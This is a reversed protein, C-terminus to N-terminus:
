PNLSNLNQNVSRYFTTVIRNANILEGSDSYARSSRAVIQFIQVAKNVDEPKYGAMQIDRKVDETVEDTGLHAVYYDVVENNPGTWTAANDINWDFDSLQPGNNKTYFGATGNDNFMAIDDMNDIQSQIIGFATETNNLSLQSARQASTLHGQEIATKTSSLIIISMIFLLMMAVLLVIGEQNNKM